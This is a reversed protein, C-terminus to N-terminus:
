NPPLTGPPISIRLIYGNMMFCQFYLSSIYSWWSLINFCLSKWDWIHLIMKLVSVVGFPLDLTKDLWMCLKWALSLCHPGRPSYMISIKKNNWQPYSNLFFLFTSTPTVSEEQHKVHIHIGEIDRAMHINKTAHLVWLPSLGCKASHMACSKANIAVWLYWEPSSISHYTSCHSLSLVWFNHLM